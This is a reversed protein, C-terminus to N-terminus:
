VKVVPWEALQEGGLEVVTAVIAKVRGGTFEVNRKVALCM